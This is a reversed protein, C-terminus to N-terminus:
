LITRMSDHNYIVSGRKCCMCSHYPFTVKEIEILIYTKLATQKYIM